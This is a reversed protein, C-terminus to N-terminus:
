TNDEDKYQNRLKKNLQFPFKPGSYPFWDTWQIGKSSYYQYRKLM